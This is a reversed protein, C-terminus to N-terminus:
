FGFYESEDIISTNTTYEYTINDNTKNELTFLG